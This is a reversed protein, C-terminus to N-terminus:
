LVKKENQNADWISLIIMEKPNFDYSILYDRAIKVRTNNLNTKRVSEPFDPALKIAEKFLNNLKISCRKTM